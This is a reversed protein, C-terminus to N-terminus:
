KTANLRENHDHAAYPSPQAHEQRQGHHKRRGSGVSSGGIIALHQLLSAGAVICLLSSFYWALSRSIARVWSKSLKSGCPRSDTNSMPALSPCKALSNLSRKASTVASSKCRGRNSIGLTTVTSPSTVFRCNAESDNSQTKQASTRSCTRSICFAQRSIALTALYSTRIPTGNLCSVRSPRQLHWLQPFTLGGHPWTFVKSRFFSMSNNGLSSRIETENTPLVLSVVLLTETKRISRAPFGQPVYSCSSGHM